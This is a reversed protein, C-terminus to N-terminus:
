GKKYAASLKKLDLRGTGPTGDKGGLRYAPDNKHATVFLMWKNQKQKATMPRKERYKVGLKNDANYRRTEEEWKGREQDDEKVKAWLVALAGFSSRDPDGKKYTKKVFYRYASLARPHTSSKKKKNNGTNKEGGPVQKRKKSVQKAM